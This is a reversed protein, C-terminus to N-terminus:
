RTRTQNANITNGSIMVNILRCTKTRYKRLHFIVSVVAVVLSPEENQRRQRLVLLTTDSAHEAEFRHKHEVTVRQDVSREEQAGFLM